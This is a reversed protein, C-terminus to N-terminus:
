KVFRGRLSDPLFAAVKDSPVAYVIKGNVGPPGGYVVGVVLGSASFVPSGSSGHAAFSDMQLITTTRKSVTGTTLTAKAVFDSGEGEMPLDLGNPFGIAVISHGESADPPDVAIGSVSPYEDARTMKILAVDIDGAPAVKVLKAPLWLNTESFKVAIEAAMAGSEPSRVNHANTLLWGDKSLSFGTGLARKGDTYKIVLMAIGTVNRKFIEPFGVSLMGTIQNQLAKIQANISDRESDSRAHPLSNRLADMAKQLSDAIAPNGGSSRLQGVLMVRMSDSAAIQRQMTEVQQKAGRQGLYFAAGVGVVVLVMAAIAIRKLGKTQQSVAVAIRAETSRKSIRPAHKGEGWVRFEVQPGKAGFTITDGDSLDCTGDVKKGNVYTGNTSGHDYLTYKGEVGRLEAHRGSVDLDGKPDFRLDCQQHRGVSIVAQQEFRQTQGARAGSLIKFEVPM